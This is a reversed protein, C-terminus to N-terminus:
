LGSFMSVKAGSSPYVRGPNSHNLLKPRIQLLARSAHLGSTMWVCSWFFFFFPKLKLLKATIVRDKAVTHNLFLMLGCRLLQTFISFTRVRKHRRWQIQEAAAALSCMTRPDDGKNGRKLENRQAAMMWWGTAVPGWSSFIVFLLSSPPPPCTLHIMTKYSSSYVVQLPPREKSWKKAMRSCLIDHLDNVDKFTM